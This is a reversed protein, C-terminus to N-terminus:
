STAHRLRDRRRRRHRRLRAQARAAPSNARASRPASCGASAPCTSARHDHHRQLGREHRHPGVPRRRAAVFAKLQNLLREAAAADDPHRRARRRDHDGDRTIAIGAEGIWGTAADFGGVIGLADDVQKVADKLDPDAALQAKIEPSRRASTTARPSSSPRRRCSRRSSPSANKAPAPPRSTRRDPTSSSPATRAGPRRRGGVAHDLQELVGPAAPMSAAAGARRRAVRRGAAIAKTDSTRSASATAPCRPRPRRSSPSRDRLGTKGKTDIAAKVSAVDGLALVPGIVRTPRRPVGAM